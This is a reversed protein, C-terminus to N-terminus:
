VVSKRDPNRLAEGSDVAACLEEGAKQLLAKKDVEKFADATNVVTVTGTARVARQPPECDGEFSEGFVSLRAVAEPTNRWDVELQEAMDRGYFNEAVPNDPRYKQQKANEGVGPM